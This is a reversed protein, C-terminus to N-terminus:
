RAAEIEQFAADFGDLSVPYTVQNKPDIYFAFRLLRGGRMQRLAADTLWGRAECVKEDCGNITLRAPAHDDIKIAVGALMYAKNTMRFSIRTKSAVNDPEVIVGLVVKRGAPDTSVKQSAVCRAQGKKVHPKCDVSWAGHVLSEAHISGPVLCFLAGAAIAVAFAARSICKFM